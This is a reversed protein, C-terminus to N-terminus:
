IYSLNLPAVVLGQMPYFLDTLTLIHVKCELLCSQYSCASFAGERYYFGPPSGDLCVAEKADDLLVLHAEKSVAYSIFVSVLFIAASIHMVALRRPRFIM